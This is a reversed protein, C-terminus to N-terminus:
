GLPIGVGGGVMCAVKIGEPVTFGQGLPGLLSVSQGAQLQALFLTGKGIVRHIIDIESVGDVIRHDAISFPRRLYALPSIFDPDAPTAALLLLVISAAILESRHRTM